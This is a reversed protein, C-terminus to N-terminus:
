DDLTKVCRCSYKWYKPATERELRSIGRGFRYSWARDSSDESASWYFGFRGLDKFRGDPYHSGGLLASFGSGAGDILNKAARKGYKKRLFEWDEDTALRWGNGLKKCAKKAAEWTYLRGYKKNSIANNDYFLSEEGIDISLNESMWIKDAFRITKIQTKINVKNQIDSGKLPVTKNSLKDTALPHNALKEFRLEKDASEELSGHEAEKVTVQTEKTVSDQVINSNPNLDIESNDFSQMKDAVEEMAKKEDAIKQSRLDLDVVESGSHELISDQILNNKLILALEPDAHMIRSIREAKKINERTINWLKPVLKEAKRYAMKARVEDGRLAYCNGKYFSIYGELNYHRVQKLVSQKKELEAFIMLTEFAAGEHTKLLGLIFDALFKSDDRISFNIEPPNNLIIAGNGGHLKPIKSFLNFLNIYCIFVSDRKDWLGGLFLGSTDCTGEFYKQWISRNYDSEYAQFSAEKVTYRTHDLESILNAIVSKSFGDVKDQQFHATFVAKKHGDSCDLSHNLEVSDTDLSLFRYWLLLLVAILGAGVMFNFGKRRGRVKSEDKSDNLLLEKIRKKESKSPLADIDFFLNNDKLLSIIEKLFSEFDAHKDTLNHDKRLRSIAPQSFGKVLKNSKIWKAIDAQKLGHHDLIFLMENIRKVIERPM